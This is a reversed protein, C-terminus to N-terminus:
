LSDPILAGSLFLSFSSSPSCSIGHLTNETHSGTDCAALYSGAELESAPTVSSLMSWVQFRGTLKERAQRCIYSHAVWKM